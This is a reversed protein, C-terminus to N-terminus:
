DLGTIGALEAAQLTQVLLNVHGRIRFAALFVALLTLALPLLTLLLLALLLLALLMLAVLVAFFPLLSLSILRKVQYVGNWAVEVTAKKKM